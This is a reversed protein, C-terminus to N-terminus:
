RCVIMLLFFREATRNFTCALARDDRRRPHKPRAVTDCEGALEAPNQDTRGMASGCAFLSTKQTDFADTAVSHGSKAPAFKIFRPAFRRGLSRNYNLEVLTPWVRCGIKKMQWVLGDCDELICGVEDAPDPLLM